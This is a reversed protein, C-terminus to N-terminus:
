YIKCVVNGVLRGVMVCVLLTGILYYYCSLKCVVNPCGMWYYLTFVIVSLVSEKEFDLVPSTCLRLARIKVYDIHREPLPYVFDRKVVACPCRDDSSLFRSDAWQSSDTNLVVKRHDCLEDFIRRAGCPTLKFHALFSLICIPDEGSHVLNRTILSRIRPFLPQLELPLLIAPPKRLCFGTKEKLRQKISTFTKTLVLRTHFMKGWAYFILTTPLDFSFRLSREMKNLIALVRERLYSIAAPHFLDGQVGIPLTRRKLDLLFIETRGVADPLMYAIDLTTYPPEKGVLTNM